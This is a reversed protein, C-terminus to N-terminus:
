FLIVKKEDAQQHQGTNKMHDLIPKMVHRLRIVRKDRQAEAKNKCDISGQKKNPYTGDM